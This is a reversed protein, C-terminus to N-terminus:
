LMPTELPKNTINYQVPRAMIKKIQFHSFTFIHFHELLKNCFEIESKRNKM